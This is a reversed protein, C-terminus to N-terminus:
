SDIATKAVWNIMTTIDARKHDVSVQWDLGLIFYRICIYTNGVQLVALVMSPGSLEANTGLEVEGVLQSEGEWQKRLVVLSEANM